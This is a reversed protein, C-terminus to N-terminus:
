SIGILQLVGRSCVNWESESALRPVVRARVCVRFASPRVVRSLIRKAISQEYKIELYSKLRLYWCKRNFGDLMKKDM